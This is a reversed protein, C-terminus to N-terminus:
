HIMASRRQRLQLREAGFYAFCFLADGLLAYGLFPLGMFYCTALGAVTAPYFGAAWVGFNSLLFFIIAGLVVAGGYHRYDSQGSLLWRGPLTALGFGVYVCLMVLPNFWGLVLHAIAVPVVTLLLAFWFRHRAGNYLAYAGIPSVGWPMPLFQLVSTFVFVIATFFRM